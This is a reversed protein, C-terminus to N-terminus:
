FYEVELRKKNDALGETALTVTYQSIVACAGIKPEPLNQVTGAEVRLAHSTSPQERFFTRQFYQESQTM